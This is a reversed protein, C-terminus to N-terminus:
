SRFFPLLKGYTTGLDEPLVRAEGAVTMFNSDGVWRPLVHLHLHGDVGAGACRGLNIGLNYGQPKYSEKLASQLKRALEIMESLAAPDSGTLDAVHAYPAVMAHGPTYPYRNLVVFNHEARRLVLNHSDQSAESAALECLFCRGPREEQTVYRYRWPSWLYDM